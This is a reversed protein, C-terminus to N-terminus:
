ATNYYMEISRIRFIADVAPPGVSWGPDGNSWNNFVWPGPVSPVDETTEWVQVGDVFWRVRGETWDLRYEHEATTADAPPSVTNSTSSGDQNADQNTLWLRRTGGNSLSNADSLWEIDTEQADSEYFFMGNCVGAPETLIAVTRVSAYRINNAVTVVEGCTYPMATQGGNVLLDLYGNRVIANEPVFVRTGDSIPYNSAYLGEPLSNGQFTWSAYNDFEAQRDVIYKGNEVEAAPSRKLVTPVSASVALGAALSVVLFNKIFYM